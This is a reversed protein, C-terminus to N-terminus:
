KGLPFFVRAVSALGAILGAVLSPVQPLVGVFVSSIVVGRAGLFSFDSSRISWM